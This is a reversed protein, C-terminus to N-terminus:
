IVIFIFIIETAHIYIGIHCESYDLRNRSTCKKEKVLFMLFGYLTM